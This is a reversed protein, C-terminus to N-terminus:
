AVVFLAAHEPTAFHEIPMRAKLCIKTINFDKALYQRVSKVDDAPKVISDIDGSAWVRGIVSDNEKLEFGCSGTGVNKADGRPALYAAHEPTM